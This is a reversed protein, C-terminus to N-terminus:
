PHESDSLGFAKRVQGQRRPSLYDYIARLFERARDGNLNWEYIQFPRAAVNMGIIQNTSPILAKHNGDHANHRLRLSGGFRSRLTNCLWADVQNVRVAPSYSTTGDKRKFPTGHCTGEGEFIGAVWIWHWPETRESPELRPDRWGRKSTNGGKAWYCRRSCFRGANGHFALFNKGCNECV